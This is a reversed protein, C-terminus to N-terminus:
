NRFLYLIHIDLLLLKEIIMLITKIFLRPMIMHYMNLVAKILESNTIGWLEKKDGFIHELSTGGTKELHIFILKNKHDIM